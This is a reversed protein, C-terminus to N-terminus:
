IELQTMVSPPEQIREMGIHRLIPLIIPHNTFFFYWFSTFLGLSSVPQFIFRFLSIVFSNYCSLLKLVTYCLFTDAMTAIVLGILSLLRFMSQEIFLLTCLIILHFESMCLTWTMEIDRYSLQFTCIFLLICTANHWNGSKLKGRSVVSFPFSHPIGGSLFVVNQPLRLYFLQQKIQCLIDGSSNSDNFVDM